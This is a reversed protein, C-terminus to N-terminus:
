NMLFERVLRQWDEAPLHRAFDAVPEGGDQLVSGSLAVLQMNLRDRADETWRRAMSGSLLNRLSATLDHTKVSFLWGRGYPEDTALGPHAALQPNVDVVEGSVPAVLSASGTESELRASPRGATLRAGIEPLSVSKAPGVLRRAFDDIGVAVTNASLPRVWTHGLHYRLDEPLQYGGVWVPESPASRPLSVAPNEAAVAVPANRRSLIFDITLFVSLMLLFLIVTM